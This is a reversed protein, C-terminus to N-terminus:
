SQKKQYKRFRFLTWTNDITLSIFTVMMYPKFSFHGDHTAQLYAKRITVTPDDLYPFFLLAQLLHARSDFGMTCLNKVAYGKTIRSNQIM